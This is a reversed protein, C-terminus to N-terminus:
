IEEKQARLQQNHLGYAHMAEMWRTLFDAELLHLDLPQAQEFAAATTPQWADLGVAHGVKALLEDYAAQSPARLAFRMLVVKDPTVVNAQAVALTCGLENAVGELRVYNVAPRIIWDCSFYLDAM